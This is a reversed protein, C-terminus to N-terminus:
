AGASGNDASHPPIRLSKRPNSVSASALDAFRLPWHPAVRIGVRPGVAITEGDARDELEIQLDGHLLEHGDYSVDIGFARCLNGPGSALAADSAATPRRIRMLELGRIPEVARILVAGGIGPPETTVNLCFYMGYIFYVYARGPRGFMNATRKTPGRFAHCAPDVLPLYAETEVIRGAVEGGADLDSAPITRRLTAGVLGRAVAITPQLFFRRWREERFDTLGSLGQGSRGKARNNHTVVTARPSRCERLRPKESM